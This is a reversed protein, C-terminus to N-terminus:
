RLAHLRTIQGVDPLDLLIEVATPLSNATGPLGGVTNSAGPIPWTDHWGSATRFRWRVAQVRELLVDREAEATPQAEPRRAWSLTNDRFEFSIREVGAAASLSLFQLESALASQQVRLSPARLSGPPLAPAVIQTLEIEIIQMARDIERWRELEQEIQTRALILQATGRYTLTGLVAFVALAVMVEILTLGSAAKFACRGHHPTM